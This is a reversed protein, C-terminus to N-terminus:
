PSYYGSPQAVLDIKFELVASYYSSTVVVDYEGAPLDKIEMDLGYACLCPCLETAHDTEVITIRSSTVTFVITFYEPCCNSMTNHHGLKLTNTNDYEYTICNRSRLSDPVTVSTNSVGCGHNGILVGTIDPFADNDNGVSSVIDTGEKDCSTIIILAPVVILTLTFLIANYFPTRTNAKMYVERCPKELLPFAQRQYSKGPVAAV